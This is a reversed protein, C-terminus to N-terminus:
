PGEELCALDDSNAGVGKFGVFDATLGMFRKVQNLGM